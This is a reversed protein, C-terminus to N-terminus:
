KRNALRFEQDLDAFLEELNSKGDLFIEKYEPNNMNKILPTEPLMTYLMQRLSNNGTKRRQTRWFGRFLQEIINNTRQPSILTNGTPTNVLIPDAFLKESYKEIQNVVKQCLVDKALKSNKKLNDRFKEVGQRITHPWRKRLDM